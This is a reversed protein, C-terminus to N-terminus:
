ARSFIKSATRRDGKPVALFICAGYRVRPPPQGALIAGWSLCMNREHPGRASNCIFSGSWKPRLTPDVLTRSRGMRVVVRGHAGASLGAVFIRRADVRYDSVVERTIGAILSPEGCDRRRDEPRFWNWCKSGNANPAQAPYVVLFGHQEALANMRTGAAFDDPSQTCGHLMVVLPLAEAGGAYNREGAKPAPEPTVAFNRKSRCLELAM